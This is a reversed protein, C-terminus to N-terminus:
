FSTTCFPARPWAFLDGARAVAGETREIIRGARWLQRAPVGGLYLSGLDAIDLELDAGDGTRVCTSGKPTVSLRYRGASAPRWPDAVDFVLEDEVLYARATLAAVADLIRVHVFDRVETTRVQRPDALWWPLPDDVACRSAKVTGILDVDLLYRWLRAHVDDTRAALEIVDLTWLPDTHRVRYIAYGGDHDEGPDCVVVFLKGGGRFTQERGAVCGWWAENRALACPIDRRYADFIPAVYPIADDQPVLRLELDDRVPTRFESRITDIEWRQHFQAMGYGFRGYISSESATLISIAEGRAAVDDLHDAMMQNLIGRRRHTPAVAVASLGAVTLVESGPVTMAFTYATTTGVMRGGAFAGITRDFEMVSRDSENVRGTFPMGFASGCVTNFEEYQDETLRRIVSPM